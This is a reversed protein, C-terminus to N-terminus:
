YSAEPAKLSDSRVVPLEEELQRLGIRRKVIAIRHLAALEQGREKLERARARAAALSGIHLQYALKETVARDM